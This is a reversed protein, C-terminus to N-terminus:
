TKEIFSYFNEMQLTAENIECRRMLKVKCPLTTIPKYTYNNHMILLVVDHRLLHWRLTMDTDTLFPSVWSDVTTHLNFQQDDNWKWLSRKNPVVLINHSHICLFINLRVINFFYSCPLLTMVKDRSNKEHHCSTIFQVSM